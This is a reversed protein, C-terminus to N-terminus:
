GNTSYHLPDSVMFRDTPLTFFPHVLGGEVACDWFFFLTREVKLLHISFVDWEKAENQQHSKGVDLDILEIGHFIQRFGLSINSIKGTWNKRDGFTSTTVAQSINRLLFHCSIVNLSIGCATCSSEFKV